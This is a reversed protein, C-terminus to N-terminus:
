MAALATTIADRAFTLLEQRSMAAGRAMWQDGKRNLGIEGMVADRRAKSSAIRRRDLELNGMIVAAPEIRGIEALNIGASELVVFENGVDRHDRWYSLAELAASLGGQGPASVQATLVYGTLNPIDHERALELAEAFAATANQVDGRVYHVLARNYLVHGMAVPSGTSAALASARHIRELADEDRIQGAYTKFVAHASSQMAQEVPRAPPDAVMADAM